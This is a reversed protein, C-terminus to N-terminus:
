GRRHPHSAVHLDNAIQRVRVQHADDPRTTAARIRLMDSMQFNGTPPEGMSFM